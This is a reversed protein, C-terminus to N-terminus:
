YEVVGVTRTNQYLFGKPKTVMPCTGRERGADRARRGKEVEKEVVRYFFIMYSMELNVTFYFSTGEHPTM